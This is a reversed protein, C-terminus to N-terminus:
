VPHHITHELWLLRADDHEGKRLLHFARSIVSDVNRTEVLKVELVSFENMYFLLTLITDLACTDTINKQPDEM